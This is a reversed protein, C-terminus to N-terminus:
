LRNYKILDIVRRFIEIYVKDIVRNNIIENVIYYLSLVISINLHLIFIQWLLLFSM